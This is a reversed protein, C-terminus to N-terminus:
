RRAPRTPRTQQRIKQGHEDEARMTGPTDSLLPLLRMMGASSRGPPLLAGCIGSLGTRVGFAATAVRSAAPPSSSSFTIYSHSISGFRSFIFPMMPLPFHTLVAHVCTLQHQRIVARTHVATSVVKSAQQMQKVEAWSDMETSRSGHMFEAGKVQQGVRRGRM